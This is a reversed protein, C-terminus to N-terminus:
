TSPGFLATLKKSLWWLFFALGTAAYGDVAYHWALHVSGLMILVAFATLAWGLWRSYTFGYIALLVSTAVHMSPMASIGKIPGDNFHGDLLMQHWELAWVPSIAHSQELFEIQAAFTDGFGFTQYYVPGVSSFIIALLNGGVSWCMAFAVLFIMSRNPDRRDISALCVAMYIMVFWGHYAMNILTTVYPSGLVPHLLQWVDYGGHINRDLQAFLPDWSYYNVEPIVDKLYSYTCVLVAISLYGVAFDANRDRNSLISRADAIMWQIPKKPKVKFIAVVFRWLFFNAIMFLTLVKFANLVNPATSSLFSQGLQLSVAIGGFVHLGTVFFLLRNRRIAGSLKFGSAPLESAYTM